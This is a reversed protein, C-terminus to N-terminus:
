GTSAASLVVAGPSSATLLQTAIDTSIRYVTGNWSFVSTESNLSCSGLVRHYPQLDVSVDPRDLNICCPVQGALEVVSTQMGKSSLSALSVWDYHLGGPADGTLVNFIAPAYLASANFEKDEAAMWIVAEYGGTNRGAPRSVLAAKGLTPRQALGVVLIDSTREPQAAAVFWQGDSDNYM